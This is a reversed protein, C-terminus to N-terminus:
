RPRTLSRRLIFRCAPHLRAGSSLCKPFSDRRLSIECPDKKGAGPPPPTYGGNLRRRRLISGCDGFTLSHDDTPERLRLSLHFRTVFIGPMAMLRLASAVSRAAAVVFHAKVINTAAAGRQSASIPRCLHVVDDEADSHIRNSRTSARPSIGIQSM